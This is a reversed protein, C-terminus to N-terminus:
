PRSFALPAQCTKNRSLDKQGSNDSGNEEKVDLAFIVM